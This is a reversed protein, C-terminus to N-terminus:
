AALHPETKLEMQAEGEIRQRVRVFERDLVFHGELPIAARM